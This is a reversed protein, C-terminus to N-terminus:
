ENSPTGDVEHTSGTGELVGSSEMRLTEALAKCCRLILNRLPAQGYVDNAAQLLSAVGKAAHKVPAGIVAWGALKAVGKAVGIGFTRLTGLSLVRRKPGSKSLAELEDALKDLEGAVAERAEKWAQDSAGKNGDRGKQDLREILEYLDGGMTRGGEHCEVDDSADDKVTNSEGEDADSGGHAADQTGPSGEAAAASQPTDQTSNPAPAPRVDGSLVDASGHQSGTRQHRGFSLKRSSGSSLKRNFAGGAMM